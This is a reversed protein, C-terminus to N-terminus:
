RIHSATTGVPTADPWADHAEECTRYGNDVIEAEGNSDVRVICFLHGQTDNGCHLYTDDGDYSDIMVIHLTAM